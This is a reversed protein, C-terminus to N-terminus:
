FAMVMNQQAGLSYKRDYINDFSSSTHDSRAVIHFNDAPLRRMYNEPHHGGLRKKDSQTLIM